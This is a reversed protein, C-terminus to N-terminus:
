RRREPRGASNKPPPLNPRIALGVTYSRYFHVVVVFVKGIQRSKMIRPHHQLFSTHLKHVFSNQVRPILRERTYVEWKEFLQPTCVHQM